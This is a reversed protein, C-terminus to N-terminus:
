DWYKRMNNPYPAETWSMDLKAWWVLHLLLLPGFKKFAPLLVRQRQRGRFPLLSGSKVSFFSNGFVLVDGFM